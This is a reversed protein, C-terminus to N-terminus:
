NRSPFIGALAICINVTLFPQRNEHPQSAGATGMAQPAMPATPTVVTSYMNYVPATGESASSGTQGFSNGPAATSLNGSGAATADVKMLHTHNPIETQLLTHAYEGTIAGPPYNSSAGGPALTRLDPLQFTTVGNGGYTTGLLSFLAQNQTISLLQGNCLAWYKPPFNFAMIRIEGMYQQSM